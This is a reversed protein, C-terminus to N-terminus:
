TLQSYILNIMDGYTFTNAPELKEGTYAGLAYAIAYYGANEDDDAVDAFPSKFIGKLEAVTNGCFYGAFLKMAEGRTLTQGEETEIFRSRNDSPLRYLASRFDSALAADNESFQEYALHIGHMKLIEAKNKIASDKIGDLDNEERREYKYIFEGTFADCYVDRDLGYVLVTKTKKKNLKALYFLEPQETEYVKSMAQEPTLMKEPSAFEVNSYRKSYNEVKLASNVTLSISDGSVLIDNVKRNWNYRGSGFVTPENETVEYYYEDKSYDTYEGFVKGALAKAAKKAYKETQEATANGDDESNSYSYSYIEGTEANLRISMTAHSLPPIYDWYSEGDIPEIVPEDPESGEWNTEFSANYMYVEEGNIKQKYLYSWTLEFDNEWTLYKNSSVLSQVGDPTGYPLNKNIEGMEQETFDINNGAGTEPNGKDEEDVSDETDWMDNGFYGDSDFNSKKGTFANIQGYDSQVYVLRSDYRDNEYDYYIEYQPTLGIMETYAKEAEEVSIASKKSQFTASPHWNINFSMLEGTDKNITISGRDNKVPVGNRIRQISYTATTGSLSVNLSDKEVKMQAYISPNLKRLAQVAASYLQSETLKALTAGTSDYMNEYYNAYSTITNGDVTVYYSNFSGEKTSWCLTYIDRMNYNNLDYYFETCEEPIEIRSKAVTLAAKLAESNDQEAYAGIGCTVATAAAMVASLVKKM